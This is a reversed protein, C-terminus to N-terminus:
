KQPDLAYPFLLVRILWLGQQGLHPPLPLHGYALLEGKVLGEAM